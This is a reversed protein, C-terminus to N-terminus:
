RQKEKIEVIYAMSSQCQQYVIVEDWRLRYNDNGAGFSSEAWCCHKGPHDKHFDGWHQPVKAYGKERNIYWPNGTAVKFIFMYGVNGGLSRDYSFNNGCYGLSKYMYPAFYSGYGYAKGCIRVGPKILAPNLYLGSKMISWINSKGTGHWLYTIGPRNFDVKDDPKIEFGESALYKNMADECAVNTVAWANSLDYNSCYNDNADKSRVLGRIFDFEEDTVRRERINNATLIDLTKDASTGSQLEQVLRDLMDQERVIISEYDKQSHAVLRDLHNMRRPVFTWITNMLVDNFAKVDQKM